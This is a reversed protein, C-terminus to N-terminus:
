YRDIGNRPARLIEVRSRASKEDVNAFTSQAKEKSEDGHRKALSCYRRERMEDGRRKRVGTQDLREVRM